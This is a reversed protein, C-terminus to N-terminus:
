NSSSLDNETSKLPKYRKGSWSLDMHGSFELTNLRIGHVLVGMLALSVNLLHGLALILVAAPITLWPMNLSHLGMAMSNFSNAIYLGSLGVAFLRIYSLVDVFCNIFTFPMYIVTGMDTWNVSFVLIMIFGIIYLWVFPPELDTVSGGKVILLRTMGFNAWLFVGWGIHGLAERAKRLFAKTDDESLRIQKAALIARWARALSMHFAGLFFSLLQIHSDNNCMWPCVNMWSPLKEVPIAFWNCTLVGYILITASMTLLLNLSTKAAEGKAKLRFYLALLTFITGYGADGVLIGCFISLFVVMCVSVDHERYGPLIGVFDFITQAMRFPKAIELKTPVDTDDEPVEEYRIAWGNRQAVARLTDIQNLPIYGRLFSISRSTGMGDRAKAFAVHEELVAMFKEIEALHKKAITQLKSDFEAASQVLSKEREKWYAISTNEPLQACPLADEDLPETSFVAYYATGGAMCIDKVVAGKPLQPRHSKPSACLVANLGHRRLTELSEKSFSGWPELLTQNRRVQLLEAEAQASAEIEAFLSSVLRETEAYSFAKMPEPAFKGASAASRLVSHVKATQERLRRLADLEESSPPTMPVVHFTGLEQLQKLATQRESSLCALTVKEM